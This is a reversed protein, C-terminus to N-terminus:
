KLLEMVCSRVFMNKNHQFINDNMISEDDNKHQTEGSRIYISCPKCYCSKFSHACGECLIKKKNIGRCTITHWECYYKKCEKCDVIDLEENKYICDDENCQPKFDNIINKLDKIM